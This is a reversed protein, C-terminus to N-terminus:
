IFSLSLGNGGSNSELPNIFVMLYLM